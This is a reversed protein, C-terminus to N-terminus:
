RGVALFREAYVSVDRVVSWGLAVALALVAVARGAVGRSWAAALAAASLVAV